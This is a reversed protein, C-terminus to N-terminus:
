SGAVRPAATMVLRFRVTSKKSLSSSSPEGELLFLNMAPARGQAILSDIAGISSEALMLRVLAMRLLMERSGLAASRDRKLLGDWGWNGSVSHILIRHPCAMSM